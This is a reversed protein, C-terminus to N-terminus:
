EDGLEAMRFAPLPLGVQDGVLRPADLLAGAAPRGHLWRRRPLLHLRFMDRALDRLRQLVSEVLFAILAQDEHRRGREEAEQPRHEVLADQLADRRRDLLVVQVEILGVQALSQAILECRGLPLAPAGLRPAGKTGILAGRAATSRT